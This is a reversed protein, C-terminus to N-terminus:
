DCKCIITGIAQSRIDTPYLESLLTYLIPGIGVVRTIMCIVMMAFPIWAFSDFSTSYDNKKLLLAYTGHVIMAMGYSLKCGVFLVKPRFRGIVFPTIGLFLTLM